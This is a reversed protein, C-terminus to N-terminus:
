VAQGYAGERQAQETLGYLKALREDLRVPVIHYRLEFQKRGMIHYESHHERCLPLVQAGLQPKTDRNFGMGVQDVHHLDARSRGCICCKKYVSCIYVYNEVDECLEYLRRPTQVGERVILGILMDIFASMERMSARSIHFDHGTAQSYMYRQEEYVQEKDEGQHDGIYTMLLWALRVQEGSRLRSDHWIVTVDDSLHDVGPRTTLVYMVGQLEHVTGKTTIM